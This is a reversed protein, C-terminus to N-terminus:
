RGQRSRAWAGSVGVTIAGMTADLAAGGGMITTTPGDADLDAQFESM